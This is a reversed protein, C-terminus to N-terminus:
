VRARPRLTARFCENQISTTGGHTTTLAVAIASTTAHTLATTSVSTFTTGVATGNSMEYTTAVWITSTAGVAEFSITSRIRWQLGSLAGVSYSLDAVTTGGVKLRPRYTTSGGSLNVFLGFAEFDFDDGVAPVNAGISMSSALLSTETTTTAVLAGNDIVPAQATRRVQALSWQVVDTGGEVGLLTGDAPSAGVPVAALDLPQDADRDGSVQTTVQDADSDTYPVGQTLTGM